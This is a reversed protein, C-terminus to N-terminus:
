DEDIESEEGIRALGQHRRRPRPPRGREFPPPPQLLKMPKAVPPRMLPMPKEKCNPYDSCLGTRMRCLWWFEILLCQEPRCGPGVGRWCGICYVKAGPRHNSCRECEERNWPPMSHGLLSPRELAACFPWDRCRGYRMSAGRRQLESSLCKEPWCGPGVARWCYICHVLENPRHARCRQCSPM